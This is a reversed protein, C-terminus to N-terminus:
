SSILSADVLTARPKAIPRSARLAVLAKVRTPPHSACRLHETHPQRHLSSFAVASQHLLAVAPQHLQALASPCRAQLMREFGNVWAEESVGSIWVGGALTASMGAAAAGLRHADGAVTARKPRFLSRLVSVCVAATMFVLATEDFTLRYHLMHLFAGGGAVCAVLLVADFTDVRSRLIGVILSATSAGTIMIVAVEDPTLYGEHAVVLVAGAALLGLGLLASEGVSITHSCLARLAAAFTVAFVLLLM